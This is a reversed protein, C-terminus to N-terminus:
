RTNQGNQIIGRSTTMVVSLSAALAGVLATKTLPQESLLWTVVFTQVFTNLARQLLDKLDIDIM